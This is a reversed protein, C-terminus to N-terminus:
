DLPFDKINSHKELITRETIYYARITKQGKQWARYARHLGDIMLGGSEDGLKVLLIPQRYDKPKLNKAYEPNISFMSVVGDQEVAKFGYFRVFNELKLRIPKLNRQAYQWLPYVKFHLSLFRFTEDKEVM